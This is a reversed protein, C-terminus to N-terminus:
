FGPLPGLNLAEFAKERHPGDREVWALFVHASWPNPNPDPRGHRRTAGSYLVADGPRMPYSEFAEDGFDDSRREVAPPDCTGMCLAWPEDGGAALTLSLSIQSANRDSHIRCIDGGFYIRFYIFSPLLEIGLMRSVMPTLGWHLALMPPYNSGHVEIANKRLLGRRHTEVSLRGAQLDSWL